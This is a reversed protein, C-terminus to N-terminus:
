PLQSSNVPVVLDFVEGSRMEHAQRLSINSEEFCSTADRDEEARVLLEGQSKLAGEFYALLCRVEWRTAWELGDSM